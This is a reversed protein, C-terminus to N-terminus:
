KKDRLLKDLLKHKKELLDKELLDQKEELLFAKDLEEVKGVLEEVKGIITRIEQQKNEKYKGVLTPLHKSAFNSFDNKQVKETNTIKSFIGQPSAPISEAIGSYVLEGTTEAYKFSVFAETLESTERFLAIDEDVCKLLLDDSLLKRVEPYLHVVENLARATESMIM